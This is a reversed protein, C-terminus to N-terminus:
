ENDNGEIQRSLTWALFQTVYELIIQGGPGHIIWDFIHNAWPLELLVSRINHDKLKKYLIKSQKVNVIQDRKGASIFIPPVNQATEKTIYNIPSFLQYLYKKEEVTGGTGRILALKTLHTPGLLRYLEDLDTLPYFAIIGTIKVEDYSCKIGEKEFFEEHCSFATLLSLHAGASRGFLFLSKSDGQYKDANRRAFLIASRVDSVMERISPHNHPHEKWPEFPELPTIRYDINFVTYGLNALVMSVTVSSKMDKSGSIWGGGHIFIMLPFTGERKPYYINLKLDENDITRYTVSDIINLRKKLKITEPGRIYRTLQFKVIKYFQSNLNPNIKDLYDEGFAEKMAYSFAKNTRRINLYPIIIRLFIALFIIVSSILLFLDVNPHPENVYKFIFPVAIIIYAIPLWAFYLSIESIYVGFFSASMIVLLFLWILAMTIEIISIIHVM